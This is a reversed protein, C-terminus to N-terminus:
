NYMFFSITTSIPSISPDFFIPTSTGIAGSANKAYSSIKWFQQRLSTLTANYESLSYNNDDFSLGARNALATNVMLYAARLAASSAIIQGLSATIAGTGGAGSPNTVVLTGTVETVSVPPTALLLGSSLVLNSVRAAPFTSIGNPALTVAWIFGAETIASGGNASINDQLVFSAGTSSLATIFASYDSASVIIGPGDTKQTATLALRSFQPISASSLHIPEPFGSSDGDKKCSQSFILAVCMLALLYCFFKKTSRMDRLWM